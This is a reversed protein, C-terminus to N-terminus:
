QCRRTNPVAPGTRVRPTIADRDINLGKLAETLNAPCFTTLKANAKNKDHAEVCLSQQDIVLRIDRTEITNANQNFTSAGLYDTKLIMPSTYLRDHESPGPGIASLEFHILNDDLVEVVLYANPITFKKRQVDALVTTPCACFGAAHAHSRIPFVM